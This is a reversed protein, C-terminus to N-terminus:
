LSEKLKDVVEDRTLTRHGVPQILAADAVQQLNEEAVGPERSHMVVPGYNRLKGSLYNMADEGLYLGTSNRYTFNGQM